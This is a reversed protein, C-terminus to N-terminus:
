NGDGAAACKLGNTSRECTLAYGSSFFSQGLWQFPKVNYTPVTAQFSASDNPDGRGIYTAVAPYPYVPRSRIVKPTPARADLGPPSGTPPGGDPPSLRGGGPIRALELQVAHLETPAAGREVWSMLPTLVDFEFPGDGGFCHYMGPFLFLRAFQSTVERGLRQQVAELYAISNRPSIHPDSWGHWLLLKGGNKSFRSLDPDTADYLGRLEFSKLTAEDFKLDRISWGEPLPTQFYLYRTADYAMNESPIKDTDTNTVYVGLWSLESGPMPGGIVLSRGQADYAGRYIKRATEVQAATLCKSEEQGLKCLTVSPDFNCRRPDGILGDKLGDLADCASLAAEHLIPLRDATLIVRGQADTNARANWAHYFSNQVTFNLAPAGAAIGNFDQPFRQAEILAERGGDSCGSFYSFMPLRGYYRKILEKVAVATLHVARYGFDAKTGPDRAAWAGGTGSHGMDTSALAFEGRDAPVCGNSHELRISLNGCLGGCGLQLYRQTWAEIPLRAEFHIQPDITGQVECIQKGQSGHEEAALTIRVQAGVDSIDAGTLDACPMRPRVATLDQIGTASQTQAHAGGFLLSSVLFVAALAKHM